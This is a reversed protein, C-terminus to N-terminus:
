KLDKVQPGESSPTERPLASGLVRDIAGILEERRFPKSVYEDFGEELLAERDGLGAYTTLAVAPVEEALGFDQLLRLLEAGSRSGPLRIDLLFLDPPEGSFRKSLVELAEEASGASVVECTGELMKELLFRAEQNDDVFLVTPRNESSM